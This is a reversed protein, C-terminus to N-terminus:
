ALVVGGPRIVSAPAAVSRLAVLLGIGRTTAGAVVTIAGTAGSGSWILHGMTVNRGTIREADETFAAPVTPPTMAATAVTAQSVLYILTVGVQTATQTPFAFNATATSTKDLYVAAFDQTTTVGRLVLGGFNGVQSAVANLTVFGNTIDTGTLTHYGLWGDPALTDGTSAKSLVTTWGTQAGMIVNGNCGGGAVALDGSAAGAPLTLNISTVAAAKENVGLAGVFTTM